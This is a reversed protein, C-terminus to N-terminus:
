SKRTGLELELTRTEGGRVYTVTVSDGPKASALFGILDEQSGIPIADLKTVVDGTELGATASPGGAIVSTLKAGVPKTSDGLKSGVYAHRAPGGAVLQPAITRVTTSPILFSVGNANGSRSQTQTSIGVVQGAANLAPGGSSGPNIAADTQIADIPLNDPSQMSRHLASVVGTSLSNTNGFPSGIVVLPDGVRVLSSDALALPHLLSSPATVRVVALDTDADKAVLRAPYRENDSFRVTIKKAGGAVHDNTVIDGRDDLVFGSGVGQVLQPRGGLYPNRESTVVLLEVVGPSARRFIEGASLRASGSAPVDPAAAASTVVTTTTGPAFSAYLAAGALAGLGAVLFAGVALGATNPRLTM